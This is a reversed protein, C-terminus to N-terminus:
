GELLNKAEEYSLGLHQQFWEDVFKPLSSSKGRLCAHVHDSLSLISKPRNAAECFRAHWKLSLVEELSGKLQAQRSKLWEIPLETKLPLPNLGIEPLSQAHYNGSQHYQETIPLSLQLVPSHLTVNLLLSMDHRFSHGQFRHTRPEQRMKTVPVQIWETFPEQITYTPKDGCLGSNTALELGSDSRCVTKPKQVTRARAEYDTYPIPVHYAHTLLEPREQFHNNFQGRIEINGKSVSKAGKLHWPSAELSERVTGELSRVFEKPLGVVSIQIQTSAILEPQPLVRQGKSTSTLGWYACYKALWQQYNWAKETVATRRFDSCNKTGIRQIEQELSKRAAEPESNLINRFSNQLHRAKLGREASIEARIKKRIHSSSHAVEESQTSWSQGEPGITWSSQNRLIAELLSAARDQDGALRHMRVQILQQSLLGKRSKELGSKASLDTPDSLLVREFGSVAAGFDGSDLAKQARERTSTCSCLVSIILLLKFTSSERRFFKM